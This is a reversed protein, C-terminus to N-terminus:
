TTYHDPLVKALPRLVTGVILLVYSIATSRTAALPLGTHGRTARSM